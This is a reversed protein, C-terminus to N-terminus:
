CSLSPPTVFRDLHTEVATLFERAWSLLEAAKEKSVIHITGYNGPNRVDFADLLYRHFKDPFHAAAQHIPTPVKSVLKVSFILM